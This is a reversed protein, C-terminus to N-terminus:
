NEKCGIKFQKRIITFQKEIYKSKTKHGEHVYVAYEVDNWIIGNLEKKNVKAKIDARLRGTDVPANQKARTLIKSM